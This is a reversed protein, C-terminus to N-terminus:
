HPDGDVREKLLNFQKILSNLEKKLGTKLEEKFCEADERQVESQFDLTQPNIKFMEYEEFNDSLELIKAYTKM